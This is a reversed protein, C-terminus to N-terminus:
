IVIRETGEAGILQSPIIEEVSDIIGPGARQADVIQTAIPEDLKRLVREVDKTPAIGFRDTLEKIARTVETLCIRFVVSVSRM